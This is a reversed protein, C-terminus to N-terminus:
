TLGSIDKVRESEARATAIAAVAVSYPVNGTHTIIWRAFNIPRADAASSQMLVVASMVSSLVLLRGLNLAVRRRASTLNTFTSM